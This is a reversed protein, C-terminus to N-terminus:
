DKKNLLDLVAQRRVAQGGPLAIVKQRLDALQADLASFVIDATFKSIMDPMVFDDDMM